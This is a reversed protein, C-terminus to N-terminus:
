NKKKSTLNDDCSILEASPKSYEKVTEDIPHLLRILCYGKRQNPGIDLYTVGEKYSPWRQNSSFNKLRVDIEYKDGDLNKPNVTEDYICQPLPIGYEDYFILSWYLQNRKDIKATIKLEQQPSPIHCRIMYYQHKQSPQSRKSAREMDVVRVINPDPLMIKHMRYRGMAFVLSRIAYTVLVGGLTALCNVFIHDAITVPPPVVAAALEIQHPHVLRWSNFIWAIANYLIFYKLKQGYRHTWANRDVAAAGAVLKETERIIKGSKRWTVEPTFITSGPAILYNRMVIMGHTWDNKCNLVLTGRALEESSPQYKSGERVLLVEYEGTEKGDSNKVSSLKISHPVETMNGHVTLSNMRCTPLRGKVVTVDTDDDENILPVKTLVHNCNNPEPLTRLLSIVTHDFVHLCGPNDAVCGQNLYQSWSLLLRLFFPVLLFFNVVGLIAAEVILQTTFCCSYMYGPVLMTM